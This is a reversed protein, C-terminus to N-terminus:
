GNYNIKDKLAELVEESEVGHVKTMNGTENCKKMVMYTYTREGKDETTHDFNREKFDKITLHQAADVMETDTIGRKAMYKLTALPVNRYTDSFHTRVLDLVAVMENCERVTLGIEPMSLYDSLGGVGEGIETHWYEDEKADNLAEALMLYSMKFESISELLHIHHHKNDM